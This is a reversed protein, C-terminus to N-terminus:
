ESVESAGGAFVPEAAAEGEEEIGELREPGRLFSLVAEVLLWITMTMVAISVIILPWNLREAALFDRLNVVMAVLSIGLMAFMPALTYWVPRRLKFLFISVTLLTLGALLQNTTGFMQWLVIGAPKYVGTEADYVRLMAFFGIGVVAALSGTYRNAIKGLGISRLIEEVNYRLLRTASDLTTLAFAVIAVALFAQGYAPDIGLADLFHGGGRVVAALQASLKGQLNGWQTYTGSATWASSGLGAVCAMIVLVALAGETLMAGYGIAHADTERNMQRVTTGSSVLSHFGSIAGCAITIFLFPFMPPAGVAQADAVAPAAIPPHLVFLGVLLLLLGAYLQYSNLYDRPQLLLWVPLVSALFAYGLLAYSWGDKMVDAAHRLNGALEVDGADEFHQAVEVAGYPAALAGQARAHHVAERTASDSAWLYTLLPNEVGWHILLFLLAVGV